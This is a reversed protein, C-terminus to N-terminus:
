FDHINYTDIKKIENEYTYMFNFMTLKKSCRKKIVTINLSTFKSSICM